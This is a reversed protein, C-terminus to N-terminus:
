NADLIEFLASLDPSLIIETRRNKSKGETTENTAVPVYEGRGACTIREAAVEQSLIRVISTARLVSLDWNDKMSSKAVFQDSDTHGEILINIDNNQSLAKGLKKLADVGKPDVSISGSKFLLKNSLSVYVKGDKVEVSLESDDFGILASTIKEKLQSVSEEQKQIITELEEVRAERDSLVKELESLQNKQNNVALEQQKLLQEKEGLQRILKQHRSGSHNLLEEYNGKLTQNSKRLAGLAESAETLSEAITLSDNAWRKYARRLVALEQKNNTNEKILETLKVALSAQAKENQKLEDQLKAFEKNSVCSVFLLITLFQFVLKRMNLKNQM